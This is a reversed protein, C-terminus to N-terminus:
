TAHEEELQALKSLLPARREGPEFGKAKWLVDLKQEVTVASSVEPVRARTEVIIEDEVQVHLAGAALLNERTERTALRAAERQDARLKCRLRIEAGARPFDAEHLQREGLCLVGDRFEVDLHVMRAAPTEIQELSVLKRGEFEALVVSKEELQGFDTRYPSGTYLAPGGPLDWGQRKHIHAMLTLDAGALALDTLGVNIPMGLLPQGTSTEAGDAMFHGLLIRPCDYQQLQVGIGRLVACLAEHTAQNALEGALGSALLSTREPWAMAGVAIKTRGKGVVHVAAGEEVTIPYRTRLRGLLELDWRKDHNGKAIVVPCVEAMPSLWEAVAHRELPTSASEYVDGGSLFVDVEHERAQEVMWAHVRKCEDFRRHQAFHHDGSALLKV